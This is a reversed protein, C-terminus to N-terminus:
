KIPLEGKNTIIKIAPFEKLLVEKNVVGEVDQFFDVRPGAYQKVVETVNREDSTAQLIHLSGLKRIVPVIAIYPPFQIETELSEIKYIIKFTQSEKKQAPNAHGKYLVHLTIPFALNYGEPVIYRMPIPARNQTLFMMMRLRLRIEADDDDDLWADKVDYEGSVNIDIWHQSTWFVFDLIPLFQKKYTSRSVWRYENRLALYQSFVQFLYPAVTKAGLFIASLFLVLLLFFM